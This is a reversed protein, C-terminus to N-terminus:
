TPIPERAGPVITKEDAFRVKKHVKKVLPSQEEVQEENTAHYGGARWNLYNTRWKNVVLDTYRIYTLFLFIGWVMLLVCIIKEWTNDADGKKPRATPSITDNIFGLLHIPIHRVYLYLSSQNYM